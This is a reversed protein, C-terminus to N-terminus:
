CQPFASNPNPLQTQGNHQACYPTQWHFTTIPSGLGAGSPCLHSHSGTVAKNDNPVKYSM